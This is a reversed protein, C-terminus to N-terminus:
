YQPCFTVLDQKPVKQNKMIAIAWWEYVVHECKLFAGVEWIDLSVSVDAFENESLLWLSKCTM